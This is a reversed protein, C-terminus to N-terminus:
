IAKQNQRRSEIYDRRRDKGSRREPIHATYSFKRRENGSRLDKDELALEELDSNGMPLIKKETQRKPKSM